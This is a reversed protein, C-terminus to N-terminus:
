SEIIKRIPIGHVNDNQDILFLFLATLL